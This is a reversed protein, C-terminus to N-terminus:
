KGKAISHFLESLSHIGRGGLINQNCLVTSLSQFLSNKGQPPLSLLIACGFDHEELALLAPNQAGLALWLVQLCGM